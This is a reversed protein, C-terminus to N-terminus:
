FDWTGRLVITLSTLKRWTWLPSILRLIWIKWTLFIMFLSPIASALRTRRILIFTLWWLFNIIILHGAHFCGSIVIWAIIAWWYCFSSTFLLHNAHHFRFIATWLHLITFNLLCQSCKSSSLQGLWRVTWSIHKNWKSSHFWHILILTKFLGPSKEVNVIRLRM